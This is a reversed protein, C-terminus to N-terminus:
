TFDQNYLLATKGADVRLTQGTIARSMDSLLFAVVWGCDIPKIEFKLAQQNQSHQQIWDMPSDTWAAMLAINQEAHVYGPAVANCRINYAGLEVALGRTLGEVGAKTSAYLAYGSITSHAHVSSINVVSGNGARNLRLQHQVFARTMLWVARLDVDLLRDYEANSAEHAVKNLGIGANNVLGDLKINQAALAEFMNLVTDPDAIDGILPIAEPFSQCALAVKDADLDNIVLRGGSRNVADCVGRGVGDGAGGTILITKGHLDSIM